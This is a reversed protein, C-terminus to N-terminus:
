WHDQKKALSSRGVDDEMKQYYRRYRKAKTVTGPAGQKKTNEMRRYVQIDKYQGYIKRLAKREFALLANEDAKKSTWNGFWM